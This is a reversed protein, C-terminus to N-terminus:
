EKTEEEDEKLDEETKRLVQRISPPLKGHKRENVEVVSLVLLAAAVTIYRWFEGTGYPVKLVTNIALYIEVAALCVSNAYKLVKYLMMGEEPSEEEM